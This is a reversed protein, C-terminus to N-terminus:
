GSYITPIPPGSRRHRSTCGDHLRYQVQPTARGKWKLWPVTERQADRCSLGNLRGSNVLMGDATVSPLPEDSRVVERIPLEFATAFEHDRRDHAPVAMIAGTGYEM